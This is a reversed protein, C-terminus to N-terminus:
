LLLIDNISMIVVKKFYVKKHFLIVMDNYKWHHHLM